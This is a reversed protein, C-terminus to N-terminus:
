QTRASKRLFLTNHVFIIKQKTEQLAALGAKLTLPQSKIVTKGCASFVDSSLEEVIQMDYFGGLQNAIVTGVYNTYTLIIQELATEDGRQLLRLQKWDNM